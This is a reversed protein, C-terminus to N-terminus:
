VSIVRAGLERLDRCINEYGRLIYQYGSIKTEGRACLGAVVLAAGGRLEKAEVRCGKLATVGNVKVREKDMVTISAGMKMLPEVVHFRNEFIREEIMGSGQMTAMTALAISQLDTPFGPYVDTVLSNVCRINHSAQVYLGDRCTQCEAGMQEAVAIISEMQECPAEELFVCGGAAIVAFVYTGAVIRDAPVRFCTGQLSKVGHIKIEKTGVGEMQAGCASLYECLAVIEPETAAGEIYTTGKALVAALIVNETAGVSVKPFCVKAGHFGDPVIGHIMGNEERFRAGMAELAKLHLDIPRTGIVCGGPYELHIEGNRSLLTSLLCLSSRMGRVAETPLEGRGVQGTNIIVCDSRMKVVCGLCKLLQQMFIVDSIRPCNYIVSEGQALLTAALIPLAANKSGQIRIRGRLPVGGYVSISDM